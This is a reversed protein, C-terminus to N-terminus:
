TVSRGGDVILSVGTIWAAADSALFLVARAIDDPTGLRRLPYQELFAGRDQPTWSSWVDRTFTTEIFGPAVANARVGQPGYHCALARTLAEVGAKSADYAPSRGRQSRTALVSSVNVIAGRTTMLHPLAYKCCMFAGRLNVAMLENWGQTSEDMVPHRRIMGANNVLVDLRGFREIVSHMLRKVEDEVSVDAAVFLGDAGLHEATERGREASRAAVVVKAGLDQALRATSLGFGATGGTILVVKGDFRVM